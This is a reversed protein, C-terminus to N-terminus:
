YIVKFKLFIETQMYYVFKMIPLTKISYKRLVLPPPKALSRTKHFLIKPLYRIDASEM